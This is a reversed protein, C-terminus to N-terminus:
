RPPKPSTPPKDSPPATSQETPPLAQNFPPPPAASATASGPAFAPEPGIDEHRKRHLLFWLVAGVVAAVVAWKAATKSRRWWLLMRDRRDKEFKQRLPLYKTKLRHVRNNLQNETMGAAAAIEAYGKKSRAKRVILEYTRKEEPNKGVQEKLWRSIMWPPLPGGEVVRREEEDSEDTRDEPAPPQEEVLAERNLWDRDKKEARFHSMTVTYAVAGIWGRKGAQTRPLSASELAKMNVKQVVDDIVHEPANPSRATVVERIRNQTEIEGLFAWMEERTVPEGDPVPVDPEGPGSDPAAEEEPLADASAADAPADGEPAGSDSEPADSDHDPPDKDSPGM